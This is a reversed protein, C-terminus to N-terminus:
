IGQLQVSARRKLSPSPQQRTANSPAAKMSETDSHARRHEKPESSGEPISALNLQSRSHTHLESYLLDVLYWCYHM